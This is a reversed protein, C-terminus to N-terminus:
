NEQATRARFLIIHAKLQKLLTEEPPITIKTYQEKFSARSDDDELIVHTM